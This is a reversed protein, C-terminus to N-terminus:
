KKKELHQSPIVFISKSKYVTEGLINRVRSIPSKTNRPLEFDNNGMSSKRILPKKPM